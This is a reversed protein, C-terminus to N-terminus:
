RGCKSRSATDLALQREIEPGPVLTEDVNVGPCQASERAWRQPSTLNEPWFPYTRCQTPRAAYVLCRGDLLFICDQNARETLSYRGDVFRIYRRTFKEFPLQLHAAIAKMEDENVWVYGPGRSGSCCDSCAPHLCRFNLGSDFWNGARKARLLAAARVAKEQM